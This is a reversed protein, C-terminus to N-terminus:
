APITRFPFFILLSLMVFSSGSEGAPSVVGAPSVGSGM